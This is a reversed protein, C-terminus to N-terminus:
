IDNRFNRRWVLLLLGQEEVSEPWGDDLKYIKAGLSGTKVDLVDAGCGAAGLTAILSGLLTSLAGVPTELGPFNPLKSAPQVVWFAVKVHYFVM